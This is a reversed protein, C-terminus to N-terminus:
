EHKEKDKPLVSEAIKMAQFGSDVELVQYSADIKGHFSLRNFQYHQELSLFNYQGDKILYNEKCNHLNSLPNKGGHVIEFNGQLGEPVRALCSQDTAKHGVDKCHHCRRLAAPKYVRGCHGAIEVIDPLISVADESVYMYWDGNHLSTPQSDHWVTGYQVESHVTCLGNMIELVQDNDVEHLPLDHVMIKVTKCQTSHFESRLPIHKGALTIGQAVLHACDVHTCLYIWWGIRMPQVMDVTTDDGM